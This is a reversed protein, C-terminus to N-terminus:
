EAHVDPGLGAHGSHGGVSPCALSNGCWIHRYHRAAPPGTRYAMEEVMSQHVQRQLRAADVPKQKQQM